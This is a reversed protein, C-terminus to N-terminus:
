KGPHTDLIVLEHDGVVLSHALSLNEVTLETCRPQSKPPNINPNLLQPNEKLNGGLNAKSASSPM